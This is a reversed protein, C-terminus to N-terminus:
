KCKRSCAVMKELKPSGTIPKVTRGENVRVRGWSNELLCGFNPM